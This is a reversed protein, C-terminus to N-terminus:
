RACKIGAKWTIRIGKEGRSGEKGEIARGVRDFSIKYQVRNTHELAYSEDYITDRINNAASADLRKTEIITVGRFFKHTYIKM